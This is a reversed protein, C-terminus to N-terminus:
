REKPPTQKPDTQPRPDKDPAIEPRAPIYPAPAPPPVVEPGGPRAPIEPQKITAM